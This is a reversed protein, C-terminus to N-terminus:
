SPKMTASRCSHISLHILLSPLLPTLFQNHCSRTVEDELVVHALKSVVNPHNVSVLLRIENVADMRELHSLSALDTEKLAFFKDDGARQVKYVKGYSGKGLM